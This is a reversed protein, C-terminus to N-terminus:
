CLKSCVSIFNIDQNTRMSDPMQIGHRVPDEAPDGLLDEGGWLILLVACQYIECLKCESVRILWCEKLTQMIAFFIFFFCACVQKELCFLQALFIWLADWSSFSALNSYIILRQQVSIIIHGIFIQQHQVSSRPLPVVATDAGDCFIRLSKFGIVPNVPRLPSIQCM